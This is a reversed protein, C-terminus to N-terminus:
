LREPIVVMALDVLEVERVEVVATEEIRGIDEDISEEPAGDVPLMLVDKIDSATPSYKTLLDSGRPRTEERKSDTLVLVTSTAPM